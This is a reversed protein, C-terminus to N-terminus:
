ATVAQQAYWALFDPWEQGQAEAQVQAALFEPPYLAQLRGEIRELQEEHTTVILSRLRLLEGIRQLSGGSNSLHRLELLILGM